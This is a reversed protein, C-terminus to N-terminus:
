AAARRSKTKVPMRESADAPCIPYSILAREFLTPELNRINSFQRKEGVAHQREGGKKPTAHPSFTLDAEPTM